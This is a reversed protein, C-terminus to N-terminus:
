KLAPLTVQVQVMPLARVRFLTELVMRRCVRTEMYVAFESWLSEVEIQLAPPSNTKDFGIHAEINKDM